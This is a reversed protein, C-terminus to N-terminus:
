KLKIDPFDKQLKSLLKNRLRVRELGDYSDPVHPYNEKTSFDHLMYIYNPNGKKYIGVITGDVSKYVLFEPKEFPGFGGICSKSVEVTGKNYIACYYARTVDHNKNAFIRITRGNGVDFTKEYYIPNFDCSCLTIVCVLLIFLNCLKLM